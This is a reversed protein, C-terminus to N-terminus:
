ACNATLSGAASLREFLAQAAELDSPCLAIARNYANVDPGLGAAEMELLEARAIRCSEPCQELRNLRKLYIGLQKRRESKAARSVSMTVPARQRPAVLLALAAICQILM